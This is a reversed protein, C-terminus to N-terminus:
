ALANQTLVEDASRRAPALLPVSVAFTGISDTIRVEQDTLLRYRERLNAL